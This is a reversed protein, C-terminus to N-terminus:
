NVESCCRSGVQNSKPKSIWFVVGLLWIGGLALGGIVDSPYHMGLYIRSIGVPIIWGALLMAWGRVGKKWLLYALYGYLSVAAVTHGSPFSLTRAVTVPLFVLPRPRAFIIKVLSNVSIAGLFSAAAGWFYVMERHHYLWLLTGTFIIATLESGTYTILLMLQDLWPASYKHVFLM